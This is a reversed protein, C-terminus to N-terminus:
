GRFYELRVIQILYEYDLLKQSVGGSCRVQGGAWIDSANELSCTILELNRTHGHIDILLETGIVMARMFTVISM